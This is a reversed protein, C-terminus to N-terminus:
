TLAICDIEVKHGGVLTAGYVTRAPPDDPFFERYVSNMNDCELMSYILVNVKVAKALSSGAAELLQAMKTLIQRTQAAVTSHRREDIASDDAVIGSLFVFDGAHIAPSLPLTPNQASDVVQRSLAAPASGRTEAAAIVDLMVKLGAEIQVSMVTRAPPSPVYPRYARNLVDYEIRDYIMAHVQVLRELSSGAPELLLKLNGFIRRTESTVTGHEREGTQPNIAVMGSCFILGGARIAPSQHHGYERGLDLGPVPASIVDRMFEEGTSETARALEKPHAEFPQM